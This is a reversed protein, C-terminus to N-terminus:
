DIGPASDKLLSQLCSNRTTMTETKGHAFKRTRITNSFNDGQIRSIEKAVMICQLICLRERSFASELHGAKLLGVRVILEEKSGIELVNHARLIARLHAVSLKMLGATSKPISSTNGDYLDTESLKNGFEDGEDRSKVIRQVLEYKKGTQILNAENLKRILTERNEKYLPHLKWLERKLDEEKQLRLQKRANEYFESAEEISVWALFAVAKLEEDSPFPIARFCTELVKEPLFLGPCKDWPGSPFDHRAEYSLYHLEGNDEWRKYDPLYHSGIM